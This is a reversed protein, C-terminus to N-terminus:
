GRGARVRCRADGGIKKWPAKIHDLYSDDQIPTLGHHPVKRLWGATPSFAAMVDVPRLTIVALAKQPSISSLDFGEEAALQFSAPEAGPQIGGCHLGAAVPM